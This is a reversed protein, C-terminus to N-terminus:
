RIFREREKRYLNKGPWLVLLIAFVYCLTPTWHWPSIWYYWWVNCIILGTAITALGFIARHPPSNKEVGHILLLQAPDIHERNLLYLNLGWGWLGICFVVIPRYTASPLVNDVMSHQTIGGGGGDPDM